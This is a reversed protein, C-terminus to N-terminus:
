YNFNSFVSRIELLNDNNNTQLYQLLPQTLNIRALYIFVKSGSARKRCANLIAMYHFVHIRLQPIKIFLKGLLPAKILLNLLGSEFLRVFKNKEDTNYYELHLERLNSFIITKSLNELYIIDVTQKNFFHIKLAKLSNFEMPSKIGHDMISPNQFTLEELRNNHALRLILLACDHGCANFTLKRLNKLNSLSNLNQVQIINSHSPQKQENDIFEVSLQQLSPIRTIQGYLIVGLMNDPHKRYLFRELQPNREFFQCLYNLQIHKCNTLKISKFKTGLENLSSATFMKQDNAFKIVDNGFLIEIGLHRLNKCFGFINKMQTDCIEFCHIELSRLNQWVNEFRGLDEVMCFKGIHLSKLNGGTCYKDILKIISKLNINQRSCEGKNMPEFATSTLHIKSVFTGVCKLIHEADNLTLKQTSIRRKVLGFYLAKSNLLLSLFDDQRRRAITSDVLTTFRQNVQRMAILEFVDLYEFIKLLCDDNLLILHGVNVSKSSLKKKNFNNTSAAMVFIQYGNKLVHTPGISLVKQAIQQNWFILVAYNRHQQKHLFFKIERVKGFTLFYDLIIQQATQKFIYRFLLM